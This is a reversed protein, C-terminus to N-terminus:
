RYVKKPIIPTGEATKNGNGNGALKNNKDGPKRGESKCGRLVGEVYSLKRINNEAAVGLALIVWEETYENSMDDLKEGVFKSLTGITNEYASFVNNKATAGNKIDERKDEEKNHLTQDATSPAATSPFGTVATEHVKYEVIGFQHHDAFEQKTKELYGFRILEALTNRVKDRGCNQMLDSVRVQWDDPKSLLYWLIGRAEWSL